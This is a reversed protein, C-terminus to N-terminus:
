SLRNQHFESLPLEIIRRNIPNEISTKNRVLQLGWSSSSRSCRAASSAAAASSFLGAMSLWTALVPTPILPSLRSPVEELLGALM